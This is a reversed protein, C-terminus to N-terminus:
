EGKLFRKFEDYSNFKERIEALVEKRTKYTISLYAMLDEDNLMKMQCIPCYEKPIEYYDYENEYAFEYEDMNDPVNILHDVCFEHGNECQVYGAEYYSMDYGSEVNGCVQCIFSSSSSNTVFGKRFKM